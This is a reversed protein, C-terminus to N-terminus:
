SHLVGCLILMGGKCACLAFVGLRASCQQKQQLVVAAWSSFRGYSGYLGYAALGSMVGQAVAVCRTSM